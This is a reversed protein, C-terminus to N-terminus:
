KAARREAILEKLSKKSNSKKKPAIEPMFKKVFAIKLEVFSIGIEQTVKESTKDAVSVVKGDANTVKVRKSYREVTTKKDAMEELWDLQNHEDCWNLIDELKMTQYNM